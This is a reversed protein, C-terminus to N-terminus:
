KSTILSKNESQQQAFERYKAMSKYNQIMEYQESLEKFIPDNLQKSKQKLQKTLNKM